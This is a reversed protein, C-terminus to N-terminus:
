DLECTRQSCSTSGAREQPRVPEVPRSSRTPPPTHAALDTAPAALETPTVAGDPATAAVGTSRQFSRDTPRDTHRFAAHAHSRSPRGTAPVEAEVRTCQPVAVETALADIATAAGTVPDADPYRANISAHSSRRTWSTPGGETEEFKELPPVAEGNPAARKCRRFAFGLILAAAAVGIAIVATRDFPAAPASPQAAVPKALIVAVPPASAPMSSVSAGSALETGNAVLAVSEPAAKSPAAAPKAAPAAAAPAPKGIGHLQLEMLVRNKLALLQQLSFPRAQPASALPASAANPTAQAASDPALLAASEVASSGGPPVTQIAGSWSHASSTDSSNGGNAHPAAGQQTAPIAAAVCEQALMASTTEAATTASMGATVASSVGVLHAPLSADVHSSAGLASSAGATVTAGTAATAPRRTSSSFVAATAPNPYAGLVNVTSSVVPTASSGAHPAVDDAMTSGSADYPPVTLPTGVKLRSPDYKMSAQPNAACLARGSRALDGPDPSQTAAAVPIDNLSQQGPQVTISQQTNVVADFPARPVAAASMLAFVAGALARVAFARPSLAARPRALLFISPSFRLTM